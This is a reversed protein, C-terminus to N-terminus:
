GGSVPPLLAVEDGAHVVDDAFAYTGNVAVRISRRHPSLAPYLAVLQPWLQETTCPTALVIEVEPAGLVDRVAAFALLRVKTPETDCSRREM